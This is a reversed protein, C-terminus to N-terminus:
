GRQAYCEKERICESDAGTRRVFGPACFYGSPCRKYQVNKCSTRYIVNNCNRECQTNCPRYRVSCNILYCEDVSVCESDNHENYSKERRVFGPACFYGQRCSSKKKVLTSCNKGSRLEDCSQECGSFCKQYEVPTVSPASTIPTPCQANAIICFTVLYLLPLIVRMANKCFDVKAMNVFM